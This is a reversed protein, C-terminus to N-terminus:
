QRQCELKTQQSINFNQNSITSSKILHNNILHSPPHSSITSHSKNSLSFNSDIKYDWWGDWRQKKRKELHSIKFNNFSWSVLSQGPHSSILHHYNTLLILHHYILSIILDYIMLHNILNILKIMLYDIFILHSIDCHITIILESHVLLSSSFSIMWFKRKLMYIYQPSLYFKFLVVIQEFFFLSFVPFVYLFIWYIRKKEYIKWINKCLM